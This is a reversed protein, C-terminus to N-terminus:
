ACVGGGSSHDHAFNSVPPIVDGVGGALPRRSTESRAIAGCALLADDCIRVRGALPRTWGVKPAFLLAVPAGAGLGILLFTIATEVSSKDSASHM